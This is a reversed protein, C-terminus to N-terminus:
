ASVSSSLRWRVDSLGYREAMPRSVKRINQQGFRPIVGIGADCSAWHWAEVNSMNELRIVFQKSEGRLQYDIVYLNLSPM